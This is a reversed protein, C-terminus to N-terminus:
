EFYRVQHVAQPWSRLRSRRPRGPQRGDAPPWDRSDYLPCRPFSSCHEDCLAGAEGLFLYVLEPGPEDDLRELWTEAVRDAVRQATRQQRRNGTGSDGADPDLAHQVLERGHRAHGLVDGVDDQVELVEDDRGLVVLRHVHVQALLTRARDGGRVDRRRGANLHVVRVQVDRGQVALALQLHLQRDLAAAAVDGGRLVLLRALLDAPDRDVRDVRRHQPDGVLDLRGSDLLPGVEVLQDQVDLGLLAQPGRSATALAPLVSTSSNPRALSSFRSASPMSMPGDGVSAASAASRASSISSSFRVTREYLQRLRSPMWVTPSSTARLSCSRSSMRLKPALDISSTLCFSM